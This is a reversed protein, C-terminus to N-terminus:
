AAPEGALEPYLDNTRIYALFAAASTGQAKAEAEAVPLWEYSAHEHSLRIPVDVPLVAAYGLWVININGGVNQRYDTRAAAFILQMNAATLSLGAEEEAERMAGALYDEGAEVKGGPLDYGGPRHRDDLSRVLVLVRGATDFVLTKAVVHTQM